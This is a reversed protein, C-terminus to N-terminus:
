AANPARPLRKRLFWWLVGAMVVAFGGAPALLAKQSMPVGSVSVSVLTNEPIDSRGWSDYVTRQIRQSGRPAIGAGSVKLTQPPSLVLVDGVPVTYRRELTTFGWFAPLAYRYAFTTEGPPLRGFFKLTAEERSLGGRADGQNIIDFDVAGASFPLLLPNESYDLAAFGRNDLHVVETLWVRGVGSEVLLLTQNIGLGGGPTGHGQTAPATPAAEGAQPVNLDINMENRDAPFTFLGSGVLSGDVRTGLQYVTHEKISVGDFLFSGDPGAEQQGIPGGKPQGKDDLAYAMLVVPNGELSREKSVIRGRVTGKREVATDGPSTASQAQLTHAALVLLLM